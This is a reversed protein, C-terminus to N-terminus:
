RLGHTGERERRLKRIAKFLYQPRHLWDYGGELKAQLLRLDDHSNVPLRPLFFWNHGRNATGIITSVGNEYGHTQLQDKLRELFAADQEPFAYPYSFSSIQEGLGDEITEKSQRIEYEVEAPRLRYLEPHNVTHSGIRIGCSHLERVEGWNLRDKGDVCCTQSKTFGSAIFMTAKFGHEALIPFAHTYFDRFGDDFTIVVRKRGNQGTMITELAQGLDVTTYGNDRLFRMQEAFREPTTNTEFYPHRGGNEPGIGHYMLIPVRSTRGKLLHSVPRMLGVSIARDLRFTSAATM